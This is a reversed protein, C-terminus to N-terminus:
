AQNEPQQEDREHTHTLLDQDRDNLVYRFCPPRAVAAGGGDRRPRVRHPELGRGQYAINTEGSRAYRIDM